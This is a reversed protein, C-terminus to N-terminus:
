WKIALLEEASSDNSPSWQICATYKLAKACQLHEQPQSQLERAGNEGAQQTWAFQQWTTYCGHEYRMILHLLQQTLQYHRWSMSYGQVLPIDSCLWVLLRWTRPASCRPMIQMCWRSLMFTGTGSISWWLNDYDASHQRIIEDPRNM